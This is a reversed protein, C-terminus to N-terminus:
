DQLLIHAPKSSIKSQYIISYIYIHIKLTPKHKLKYVQVNELNEIHFRHAPNDKPTSSIENLGWQSKM